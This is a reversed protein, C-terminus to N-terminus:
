CIKKREILSFDETKGKKDDLKKWENTLTNIEKMSNKILLNKIRKIEKAKDATTEYESTKNPEKEAEETKTINQRAKKQLNSLESTGAGIASATEDDAATADSVMIYDTIDNQQQSYAWQLVEEPVTYGNNAM